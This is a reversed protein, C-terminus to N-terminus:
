GRTKAGTIKVSLVSQTIATIRKVNLSYGILADTKQSSAPMAKLCFHKRRTLRDKEVKHTELLM